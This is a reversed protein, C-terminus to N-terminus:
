PRGPRAKKKRGRPYAAERRDMEAKPVSLVRRVFVDFPEGTSKVIRERTPRKPPKPM